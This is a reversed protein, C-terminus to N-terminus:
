GGALLYRWHLGPKLDAAKQNLVAMPFPKVPIWRGAQDKILIPEKMSGYQGNYKYDPTETGALVGPGWFTAQYGAVNSVHCAECSLKKHV